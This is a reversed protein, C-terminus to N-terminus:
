EEGIEIVDEDNDNYEKRYTKPRVRWPRMVILLIFITFTSIFLIIVISNYGLSQISISINTINSDVYVLKSVNSSGYIANVIHYGCAVLCKDTCEKGDVLIKANIPFGLMDTTSIHIESICANVLIRDRYQMYPVKIIEGDIDVYVEPNSKCYKLYAISFTNNIPTVYYKHVRGCTLITLNCGHKCLGGLNTTIKLKNLPLELEAGRSIYVNGLEVTKNNIKLFVRYVGEVVCTYPNYTTTIPGSLIIKISKSIMKYTIPEGSSDVLTVTSLPVIGDTLSIKNGIISDLYYARIAINNIALFIMSKEYGIISRSCFTSNCLEVNNCYRLISEPIEIEVRCIKTCNKERPIIYYASIIIRATGEVNIKINLDYSKFCEVYLEGTFKKEIPQILIDPKITLNIPAVSLICIRYYTLYGISSNIIIMKPFLSESINIKNNNIIYQRTLGKVIIGSYHKRYKLLTIKICGVDDAINLVVKRLDYRLVTAVNETGTISILDVKGIAYNSTNSLYITVDKGHVNCIKFTYTKSNYPIYLTLIKTNNRCKVGIQEIYYTVTQANSTSLSLVALLLILIMVPYIRM